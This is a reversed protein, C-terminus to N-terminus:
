GRRKAESRSIRDGDENRPNCRRKFKRDRVAEAGLTGAITLAIWHHPGEFEIRAWGM